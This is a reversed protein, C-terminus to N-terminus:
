MRWELGLRVRRPDYTASPDGLEGGVRGSSDMWRVNSRGLINRGDAYVTLVGSSGLHLEISAKVNVFLVHEMRQNNPVFIKSSDLPRYGDRTPYYTFPRPSNYLAVANLHVFDWMTWEADAKVTHRQDWSLPYPRTAVPFGWQALNIGQDAAETVGETFMLTYSISGRIREGSERTLVVELGESRGEANNVYSAFGYNGASKSDFPILTKVDLQNTMKKRFHTVSGVTQDDISLKLGIEWAVTREPQLDPNGAQVNKSGVALQQPQTGSYLQDFLPFQFYHGYNVFVFTRPSVPATYSLRPSLQQKLMAPAYGAVVQRYEGPTTPIFEVIPRVALPDLFEWRVGVTLISGESEVQVKDQLYVSGSRPRYAYSNGFNLMPASAIPKGYYTRQPEVKQLESRLDYQHVEAGMKWMQDKWGDYVSELKLTGVLQRADAWWYRTGRVVYRLFFDYEYPSPDGPIRGEGIQSRQAFVSATGILTLGPLPSTAYQLTGRAATRERAPLGSLNFRWSFEYDRWKKWSYIAQLSLRDASGPTSELKTLGSVETVIPSAVQRQFDQWWRTEDTHLVNATFLYLRDELIPGSGALETEVWGSHEQNLKGLWNDREHRISWRPMRSAARTVVNVVGAQANGYEAEFGGTQLTIGTIASRPLSASSGGGLVDMVPLGDVLFVVDTTKGGRVNGENTTGPQLALVDQVTSIPLLDMKESGVMFATAALDRQILPRVARIEVAEMEVATPELDANVVTRLDALVRVARVITARYGLHSVKVDYLGARIQGIRYRGDTDTVAGLMTGVVTVTAGIVPEGTSRDRVVGEILGDTGAWLVSVLLV